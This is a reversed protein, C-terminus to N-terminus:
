GHFRGLWGHMVEHGLVKYFQTWCDPSWDAMAQGRPCISPPGIHALETNVTRCDLYFCGYYTIGEKEPCSGDIKFRLQEQYFPEGLPVTNTVTGNLCAYVSEGVHRMQEGYSDPYVVDVPIDTYIVCVDGNIGVSPTGSVLAIEQAQSNLGCGDDHCGVFLATTFIVLALFIVM